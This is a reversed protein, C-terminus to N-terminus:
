LSPVTLKYVNTPDFKAKLDRLVGAKEGYVKEVWRVANESRTSNYLSVYPTELLSGEAAQEVEQAMQRAWAESRDQNEPTAAYGLIELMYHPERPLFLSGHAQPAASPGRLQHMSFMAGPDNPLVSLNRAITEALAPTIRSVNFTWSSGYVRDPVNAGAGSIWEPITTPKVANMKVPGLAAIKEIWPKGEELDPGSWAFLMAFALGHPSAFCVPQLTLYPPLEDTEELNTFAANFKTFSTVIDSSDFVIPGALIGTLPYVKITVDVIVGFVGGAGRIGELLDEDAEIIEGDPNIVSAGIIQDVGLGWHSSFPGYGGYSAWGFYGVSPITGTSTALGQDWLKSVLEGQLIGGGVTASKRDEAVTVSSLARLDILLADQVLALGELNHGGSRLTFPIANSQAFKIVTAVEKASQPQFVALPTANRSANWVGSSSAFDPSSPSIYKITSHDQSFADLANLHESTDTM